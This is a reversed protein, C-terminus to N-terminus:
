STKSRFGPPTARIAGILARGRLWQRTTLSVGILDPAAAVMRAVIQEPTEDVTARLLAAEHGAARLAAGLFGPGISAVAWSRETDVELFVVRM